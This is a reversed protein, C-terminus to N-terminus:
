TMRCHLSSCRAKEWTDTLTATFSSELFCSRLHVVKEAVHVWFHTATLHKNIKAQKNRKVEKSLFSSSAPLPPHPTPFAWILTFALPCSPPFPKPWQSFTKSLVDSEVPDCSWQSHLGWSAADSKLITRVQLLAESCTFQSAPCVTKM